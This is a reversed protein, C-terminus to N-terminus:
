LRKRNPDLTGRRLVQKVLHLSRMDLVNETASSMHSHPQPIVRCHVKTSSHFDSRVQVQLRLQGKPQEAPFKAGSRVHGHHMRPQKCLRGGIAKLM